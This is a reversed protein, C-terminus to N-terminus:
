MLTIVNIDVDSSIIIYSSYSYASFDHFIGRLEKKNSKQSCTSM